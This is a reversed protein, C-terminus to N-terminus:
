WGAVQREAAPSIESQRDPTQHLSRPLKLEQGAVCAGVIFVRQQSYRILHVCSLAEASALLDIHALEHEAVDVVPSHAVQKWATM